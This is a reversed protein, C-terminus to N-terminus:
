VLKNTCRERSGWDTAHQVVDSEEATEEEIPTPDTRRNWQRWRTVVDPDSQRKREPVPQRRNIYIVFLSASVSM